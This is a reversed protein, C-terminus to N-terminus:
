SSVNGNVGCTNQPDRQSSNGQYIIIKLHTVNGSCISQLYVWSKRKWLITGRILVVFLSLLPSLKQRIIVLICYDSQRLTIRLELTIFKHKM